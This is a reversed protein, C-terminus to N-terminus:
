RRPWRTNQKPPCPPYILIEAKAHEFYKAVMEQVQHWEVGGGNECGLAPIAVSQIDFERVKRALECLGEDVWSLQSRSGESERVSLNAIWVGSAPDQFMWIRGPRLARQACMGKYGSVMTPFKQLFAAPLGEKMRGSSNVPNVLCRLGSAFLDRNNAEQIM